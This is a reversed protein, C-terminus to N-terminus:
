LLEVRDYPAGIEDMLRKSEEAQKAPIRVATGCDSSIHRPVPIMKASLGAALLIKEARIAHSTSHTIIVAYTSM